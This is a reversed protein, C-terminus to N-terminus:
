YPHIHNHHRLNGQAGMSRKVLNVTELKDIVSKHLYIKTNSCIKRMEKKQM